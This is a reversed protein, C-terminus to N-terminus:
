GGLESLGGGRRRVDVGWSHPNGIGLEVGAWCLGLGCRTKVNSFQVNFIEQVEGEMEWGEGQFSKEAVVRFLAGEGTGDGGGLFGVVGDRDEGEVAAGGGEMEFGAEGDGAGEGAAGLEVDEGAVGVGFGVGEAVEEFEGFGEGGVEFEGGGVGEGEVKLAGSFEMGSAVRRLGVSIVAWKASPVRADALEAEGGVEGGGGGGVEGVEEGEGWAAGVAENKSAGM